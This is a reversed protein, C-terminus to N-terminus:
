FTSSTSAAPMPPRVSIPTGKVIIAVGAMPKGNQDVVTGNAVAPDKSQAFGSLNVMTLAFIGGVVVLMMGTRRCISSIFEVCAKKM